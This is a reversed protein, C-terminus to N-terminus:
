DSKGAGIKEDVITVRVTSGAKQRGITIFGLVGILAAAVLVVIYGSPYSVEMAVGLATPAVMAGLQYAILFAANAVALDALRVTQGIFTLSLAYFGVGIGGMVFVLVTMLLPSPAFPVLTTTVAFILGVGILMTRASLKDALVGIPFILVLGGLMFMTVIRLAEAESMGIAVGYVPLMSVNGLELFGGVLGGIMAIPALKIAGFVGTQPHSPMKPALKLAAVLPLVALFIGAAGFLFPAWGTIGVWQLVYPGVVFGSFLAIAYLALLQGRNRNTAVTNIWTEGVLWPLALGAGMIFRLVLWAEPSPFVPMLLFSLGVLVCGLSMAGVTNLRAVIAPFFPLCLLIALAPMSGALGTLWAPQAWAEFTLSTLPYGVGYSVGVGITSLIVAAVSLMRQRPTLEM